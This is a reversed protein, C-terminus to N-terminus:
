SKRAISLKTFLDFGIPHPFVSHFCLLNLFLEFASFNFKDKILLGKGLKFLFQALIHHLVLKGGGSDAIDIKVIIIKVHDLVRHGMFIATFLNPHPDIVFLRRELTLGEQFDLFLYLTSAVLESQSRRGNGDGVIDLM